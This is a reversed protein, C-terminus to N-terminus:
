RGAFRELEALPKLRVRGGEFPRPEVHRLDFERHQGLLTKLATNRRKSESVPGYQRPSVRAIEIAFRNVPSEGLVVGSVFQVSMAAIDLFKQSLGSLIDGFPDSVHRMGHVYVLTCQICKQSM